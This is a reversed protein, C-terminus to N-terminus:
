ACGVKSQNLWRFFSERGIIYRDGIKVHPIKGARLQEYVTKRCVGLQGAVEEPTLVTRNGDM